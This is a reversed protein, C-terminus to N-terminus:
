EQLLAVIVTIFVTNKPCEPVEQWSKIQKCLWLQTKKKPEREKFELGYFSSFSVHQRMWTCFQKLNGAVRGFSEYKMPLMNEPAEKFIHAPSRRLSQNTIFLFGGSAVAWLHQKRQGISGCGPFRLRLEAPISAPPNQAEFVLLYDALFFYFFDLALSQFTPSCRRAEARLSVFSM